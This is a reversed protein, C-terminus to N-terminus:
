GDFQELDYFDKDPTWSEAVIFALDPSYGVEILRAVQSRGHDSIWCHLNGTILKCEAKKIFRKYSDFTVDKM